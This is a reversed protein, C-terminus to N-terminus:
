VNIPNKSDISIRRETSGLVELFIRIAGDPLLDGIRDAWEVLSIGDRYFYDRLEQELSDGPRELRYLDIHYVPLRGEYETIIVFSPSKVVEKVLLGLAVGKILTTKGSGLEGFLGVVDGKKLIRGLRKGLGETEAPSRTTFIRM